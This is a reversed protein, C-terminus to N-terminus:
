FGVSASYMLRQICSSSTRSIITVVLGSMGTRILMTKHGNLQLVLLKHHELCDGSMCLTPWISSLFSWSHGPVVMSLTYSLVLYRNCIKRCSFCNLEYTKEHLCFPKGHLIHNLLRVIWCWAYIVPRFTLAGWQSCISVPADIHVIEVTPMLLSLLQLRYFSFIRM